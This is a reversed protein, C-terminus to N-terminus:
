EVPIQKILKKFARSAKEFELDNVSFEGYWIYNYLYSAYSFQKKVGEDKIENSYDSNTKEVDYDIMHAANLNKLVWLYYYRVALRYNKQQVAEKVLGIFNTQHINSEIDTVPIINKDSSKGFVWSGEDNMVAKVIFYIVLIFIILGAIKTLLDMLDSNATREGTNFFERWFENWARKFNTWWGSNEMTREYIYAEDSYKEKLDDSFTKPSISSDDEQVLPDQIEIFANTEGKTFALACNTVLLFLIIHPLFRNVRM